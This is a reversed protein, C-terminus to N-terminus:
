PASGRGCVRDAVGGTWQSSRVGGTRRRFLMGAGVVHGRHLQVHRGPCTAFNLLLQPLVVALMVAPQIQSAFSIVSAVKVSPELEGVIGHGDGDHGVGADVEGSSVKGVKAARGPSIETM